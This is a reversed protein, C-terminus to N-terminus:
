RLTKAAPKMRPAASLRRIDGLPVAVYRGDLRVVCWQTFCDLVPAQRVAGAVALQATALKGAAHPSSMRGDASRAERKGQEVAFALPLILLLGAVFACLILFLLGSAITSLQMVLRVPANPERSNELVWARLRDSRDRLRAGVISQLLGVVVVVLALGIAVAAAYGMSSYLNINLARATPLLVALFGSYLTEEVGGSMVSSPLGLESWYGTQYLRGMAYLLPVALAFAKLIFELAAGLHKTRAPEHAM